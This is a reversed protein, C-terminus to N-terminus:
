QGRAARSNAENRAKNNMGEEARAKAFGQLDDPLTEIWELTADPDVTAWSQAIGCIAKEKIDGKLTKDRIFEIVEFHKPSLTIGEERAIEVAIDKTWQNPDTLYGDETVTVSKGAYVKESM